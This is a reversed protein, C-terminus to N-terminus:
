KLELSYAIKKLDERYCNAGSSVIVRIIKNDSFTTVCIIKSKYFDHRWIRQGNRTEYVTLAVLRCYALLLLSLFNYFRFWTYKCRVGNNKLNKLLKQVHATKGVGDVGIICIFAPKEKGM